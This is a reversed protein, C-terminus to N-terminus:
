VSSYDPNDEWKFHMLREFDFIAWLQFLRSSCFWISNCSCCWFLKIVTVIHLDLSTRRRHKGQFLFHGVLKGYQEHGQHYKRFNVNWWIAADKRGRKNCFCEGRHADRHGFGVKNAAWLPTHHVRWFRARSFVCPIEAAASFPDSSRKWQCGSFAFLFILLVFGPTLGTSQYLIGCVVFHASSFKTSPFLCPSM